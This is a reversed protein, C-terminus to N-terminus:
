EHGLNREETKRVPFLLDPQIPIMFRVSFVPSSCHFGILQMSGTTYQSSFLICTSSGFFTGRRGSKSGLFNCRQRVGYAQTGGMGQGLHTINCKGAKCQGCLSKPALLTFYILVGIFAEGMCQRTSLKQLSLGDRSGHGLFISIDHM